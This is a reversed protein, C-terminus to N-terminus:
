KPVKVEYYVDYLDGLLGKNRLVPVRSIIEYKKLNYGNDQLWSELWMIRTREADQSDIPYDAAAISTYKFYQATPETRIPEFRTEVTRTINSCGLLFVSCAVLSRNIMVIQFGFVTM